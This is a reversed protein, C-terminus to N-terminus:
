WVHMIHDLESVFHAAEPGVRSEHDLPVFLTHGSDFRLVISLEDDVDVTEVVAGIVNCFSERAGPEPFRWVTDDLTLRPNSLARVISGDFHFEVYNQVFCVASVPEGVLDRISIISKGM